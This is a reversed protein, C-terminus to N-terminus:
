VCVVECPLGCAVCADGGQPGKMSFPVMWEECVVITIIGPFGMPTVCMRKIASQVMKIM